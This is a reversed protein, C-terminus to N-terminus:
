IKHTEDKGGYVAEFLATALNDYQSSSIFTNQGALLHKKDRYKSTLQGFDLIIDRFSEVTMQKAEGSPKPKCCVKIHINDNLKIQKLREAAEYYNQEPTSPIKMREKEQWIVYAIRKITDERNNEYM